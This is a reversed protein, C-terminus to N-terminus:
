QPVVVTERCNMRTIVKSITCELKRLLSLNLDCETHRVLAVVFASICLNFRAFGQSTTYQFICSKMLMEESTLDMSQKIALEDSHETVYKHTGATYM